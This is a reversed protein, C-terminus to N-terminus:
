QTSRAWKAKRGLEANYEEGAVKAEATMERKIECVRKRAEREKCRCTKLHAKEERRIDESHEDNRRKKRIECAM